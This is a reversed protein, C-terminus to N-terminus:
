RRMPDYAGPGVNWINAPEGKVGPTYSAPQSPPAYPIVKGVPKAPSLSRSFASGGVSQPPAEFGYSKYKNARMDRVKQAAVKIVNRQSDTLMKDSPQGIVKRLEEAENGQLVGTNLIKMFAPKVSSQWETDIADAEATGALPMATLKARKDVWDEVDTAAQAWTDSDLLDMNAKQREVPPLSNYLPATLGQEAQQNKFREGRIRENTLQRTADSAGAGAYSNAVSARTRQDELQLRFQEAQWQQQARLEQLRQQESQALTMNNVSWDRGAQDRAMASRAQEGYGLMQAAMDEKGPIASARLWFQEDPSRMGLLGQGPQVPGQQELTGLLGKYEENAKDARKNRYYDPDTAWGIFSDLLGAM